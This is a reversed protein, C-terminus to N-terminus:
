HGARRWSLDKPIQEPALRTSHMLQILWRGDQRKLVVSELWARESQSGTSRFEARNWYSIWATDNDIETRIPAFYNSRSYDGAVASELKRRDWVEGVELLQFDDSVWDGVSRDPPQSLAEFFNEVVAFLRDAVGAEVGEEAAPQACLGRALCFMILGLATSWRFRRLGLQATNFSPGTRVM